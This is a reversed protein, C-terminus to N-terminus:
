ETRREQEGGADDRHDPRGAHAHTFAPPDSAPFSEDSAEDVGADTHGHAAERDPAPPRPTEPDAM